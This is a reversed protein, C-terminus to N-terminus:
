NRYSIAYIILFLFFLFPQVYQSVYRTHYTAPNVQLVTARLPIRPKKAFAAAKNEASKISSSKSGARVPLQMKVKVKGTDTTTTTTITSTATAATTITTATTNTTVTTATISHVSEDENLLVKIEEDEDESSSTDDSNYDTHVHIPAEPIDEIYKDGFAKSHRLAPTIRSFDFGCGVLRCAFPPDACWLILACVRVCV